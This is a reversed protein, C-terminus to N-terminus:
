WMCVNNTVLPDALNPLNSVSVCVYVYVSGVLSAQLYQCRLQGEQKEIELSQVQVLHFIFGLNSEHLMYM